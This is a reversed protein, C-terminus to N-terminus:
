TASSRTSCDEFTYLPKNSTKLYENFNELYERFPECNYCKVKKDRSIRELVTLLNYPALNTFSIVYKVYSEPVTFISSLQKTVFIPVYLLEDLMACECDSLPTSLNIFALGGEETPQKLLTSLM